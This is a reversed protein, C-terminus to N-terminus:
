YLHALMIASPTLAPLILLRWGQHLTGIQMFDTKRVGQGEGYGVEDTYALSFRPVGYVRVPLEEESVCEAQESQVTDAEQSM